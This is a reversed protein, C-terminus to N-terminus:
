LGIEALHERLIRKVENISDPHAQLSHGSRVHLESAMGEIHASEYEVVGDDQGELPGEEPVGIVSHGTTRAALPKAHLTELFPDGPRMNDISTPLRRVRRHLKRDGSPDVLEAGGQVLDVPLTILNVALSSLSFSALYSGGHPTAMFIVRTVFPLSEFFIADDVFARAEESLGAEDVPVDAINDWFSTGSDVAQLKTLLGGQSHGIVVMRQLARDNGDPDLEDVTLSLADRLNGASLLIPSGTPYIFLWIQVRENLTPDGQIENILEAWRAPSSATGHVLVVPVRGERYPSFLFLSDPNEERFLNADGVRFGALEFDWLPSEELAYALATTTDYELPVQLDGVEIDSSQERVYVELVGSLQGQELGTLVDDFRLFVTVPVRLKPPLRHGRPMVAEEQPEIAALLAAGVGSTRYRNRMGRVGFEASPVFDALRYRDWKLDEEDLLIQLEGLSTAFARTSLDLHDSGAPKLGEALAQNYLDAAARLRPDLPGPRDYPDDPFLSAYAFAAAWLFYSSDEREQAHHFCLAALAFTQDARDPADALGAAMATIVAEPDVRYAAALGQRQLVLKTAHGLDGTTLVSATIERRVERPDKHDVGIPTACAVAFVLVPLLCAATLSYRPM